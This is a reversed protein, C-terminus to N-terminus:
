GAMDNNPDVVVLEGVHEALEEQVEEGLRSDVILADARGLPAITSIGIVGWKTHDAVVVLKRAARVLARDTEAELLNPTTFGAGVSMGHVGLVLVDVNLNELSAVAVPGVLADSPTRVGGVLVVTQDVRGQRHFVDAVPISNTVVTLGPVDALHGALTWTTTGASLAVASGPPVLDAARRAIAEKEAAQRGSKTVFGPEETSGMEVSTAGGHVKAVLGREALVELDRRVTMDSVGFMEVLAAVRVAGQKAVLDVIALQRQRALM